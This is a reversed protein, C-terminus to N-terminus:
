FLIGLKLILTKFVWSPLHNEFIGSNFIVRQGKFINSWHKHTVGPICLKDMVSLQQNFHEVIHLTEQLVADNTPITRSLSVAQRQWMDVQELAKSVM